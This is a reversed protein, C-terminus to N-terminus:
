YLIRGETTRMQRHLLMIIKFKLSYYMEIHLAVQFLNFIITVLM